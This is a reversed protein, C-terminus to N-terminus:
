VGPTWAPPMIAVVLTVNVTTSAAVDVVAVNTNGKNATNFVPICPKGLKLSLDAFYSRTFWPETVGPGGINFNSTDSGNLAIGLVPTDVVYGLVAYFSNAKSVDYLNTIITNAWDGETAPAAANVEWTTVFSATNMIDGPMKLTPQAGALNDYYTSLLAGDFESGGGTVEVTLSDQAILQQTAADSLLGDQVGAAAAFRIGQVTDSLYPSRVRVIGKTVGGRSLGVLQQTTSVSTGRVTFSSGQGASVATITTSPDSVAGADCVLLKGV